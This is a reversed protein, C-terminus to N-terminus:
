EPFSGISRKWASSTKLSMSRRQRQVTQPPPSSIQPGVVALLLSRPLATCPPHHRRYLPTTNSGGQSTTLSIKLSSALQNKKNSTLDLGQCRFVSACEKDDMTCCISRKQQAM